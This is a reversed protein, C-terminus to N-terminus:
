VDRLGPTALPVSRVLYRVNPREVIERKTVNRVFQAIKYVSVESM